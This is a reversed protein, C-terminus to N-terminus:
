VRERRAFQVEGSTAEPSQSACLFDLGLLLPMYLYKDDLVYVVTSIQLDHLKFLLTTKGMATSEQGNAMVFRQELGPTLTEGEKKIKEWLNRRMLTFTCGTDVVADGSIGRIAVPVVLLDPMGQVMAVDAEKNKDSSKKSARKGNKDTSSTQQVRSWYGKSNSWDREILSGVKVLQEVTRVIGRLGSALRPNCANLIRRVIEEEPMEPRWKLCLAQYDYSFDRLCQSPAQTMTRLQEEIESQYDSSLFAALFAEKFDAWNKITSRTAVWWSHAPGKLVTSLAGILEADSLPRLSLFNECQEIFDTVDVSSTKDALGFQPFELRIPPKGRAHHISSLTGDANNGPFPTSVASPRLSLRSKNITKQIQEEWRKDRRQLCAVIAQDLSKIRSDVYEKVDQSLKDISARVGEERNLTSDIAQRQREELVSMRSKLEELQEELACAEDDEGEEAQQEEAEEPDNLYLGELLSSVESVVSREARITVHRHADANPAQSDGQSQAPTLLDEERDM